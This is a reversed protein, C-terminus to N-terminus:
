RKHNRLKKKLGVPFNKMTLFEPREDDNIVFFKEPSNEGEVRPSRIADNIDNLNLSIQSDFIRPAFSRMNSSQM